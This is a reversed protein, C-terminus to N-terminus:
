NHDKIPKKSKFTAYINLDKKGMFSMVDSSHKVVKVAVIGPHSIYDKIIINFWWDWLLSITRPLHTSM